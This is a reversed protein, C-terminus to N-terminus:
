IVVSKKKMEFESAIAEMGLHDIVETILFKTGIFKGEFNIRDGAEILMQEKQHRKYYCVKGGRFWIEYTYNGLPDLNAQRVSEVKGSYIRM